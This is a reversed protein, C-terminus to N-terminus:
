GLRAFVCAAALGFAVVSGIITLVGGLATVWATANFGSRGLRDAEDAMVAALDIRRLPEFEFWRSPEDDFHLDSM